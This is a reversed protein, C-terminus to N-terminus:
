GHVHDAEHGRRHAVRVNDEMLMLGEVRRLAHPRRSRRCARFRPSDLAPPSQAITASASMTRAREFCGRRPSCPDVRFDNVHPRENGEVWVM